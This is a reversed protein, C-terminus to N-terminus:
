FPCVSTTEGHNEFAIDVAMQRLVDPPEGARDAHRVDAMPNAECFPSGPRHAYHYGGCLCLAHGKERCHALLFLWGTRRTRCDPCRWRAKNM